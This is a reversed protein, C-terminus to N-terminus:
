MVLFFRTADFTVPPPAAGTVAYFPVGLYAYDLTATDQDKSTVTCFPAGQYAYDLTELDTKAPLSM